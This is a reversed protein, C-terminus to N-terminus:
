LYYTNKKNSYIISQNQSVLLTFYLLTSYTYLLLILPNLSNVRRTEVEIYLSISIYSLFNHIITDYSSCSFLPLFSCQCSPICLIFISDLLTGTYHLINSINSQYGM